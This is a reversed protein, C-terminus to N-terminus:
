QFYKKHFEAVPIWENTIPDLVNGKDLQADFEAWAKNAGSVAAFYGLLMGVLGSVMISIMIMIM